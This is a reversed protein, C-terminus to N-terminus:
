NKIVKLTENFSESSISLPLSCGLRTSQSLPYTPKPIQRFIYRVKNGGPKSYLIKHPGAGTICIPAGGPINVGCAGPITLDGGSIINYNGSGGPDAYGPAVILEFMAVDPHLTVYFSVYDDGCCGSKRVFEPTTYSMNPNSSLDMPFFPVVVDCEPLKTQSFLNSSLYLLSFVFVLFKSNVLYKKM